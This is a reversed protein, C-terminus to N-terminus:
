TVEGPRMRRAILIFIVGGLAAATTGVRLEAPPMVVRGFVDVALLIAPGLPLAVALTAVVSRSAIMRALHPVALGLFAIPGAVVVAGGCLLTVALLVSARVLGTRTGLSRAAEDGLALADLGPASAFALVVGAAVTAAMPLLPRMQAEALSGVIWFRYVDLAEARMLVLASILSILLANLAIGALALRAPTAGGGSGARAGGGLLFVAAAALAAGPFALWPAAGSLGFAYVGLVVAFGAGANVGLIGPEALPNRTVAQMLVGALALGVGAILAACLRPLRLDRIVLHNPDSPDFATIAAWIEAPPVARAGLSLSLIVGAVLLAIVLVVRM